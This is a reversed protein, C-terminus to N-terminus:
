NKSDVDLNSFNEIHMCGVKAEEDLKALNAGNVGVNKEEAEKIKSQLEKIKQKWKLIGFGYSATKNIEVKLEEVGSRTEVVM